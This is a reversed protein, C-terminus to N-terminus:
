KADGKERRHDSLGAWRPAAPRREASEASDAENQSELKRERVNTLQDFRERLKGMSLINAFWFEDNQSFVILEAIQKETRGDLRIMRDAERAWKSAQAETVKAGPNNRLMQDKLAKALRIGADTPPLTGNRNAGSEKRSTLPESGINKNSSSSSSSSCNGPKRQADAPSSEPLHGARREAHGNLARLRQAESFKTQKEITRQLGRQEWCQSDESLKWPGALLQNKIRHWDDDSPNRLRTRIAREDAPIRYREPSAAAACMLLIHAGVVDLDLAMVHEDAAFQRPYFQFAPPREKM